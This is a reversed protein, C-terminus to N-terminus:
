FNCMKIKSNPKRVQNIKSKSLNKFQLNWICIKSIIDNIIQNLKGNNCINSKFYISIITNCLNEDSDM